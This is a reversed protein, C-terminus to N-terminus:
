HLHSNGSAVHWLFIDKKGCHPPKACMSGLAQAYYVEELDCSIYDDTKMYACSYAETDPSPVGLRQAARGAVM